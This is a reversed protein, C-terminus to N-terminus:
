ILSYLAFLHFDLFITKFGHELNSQFITSVNKPHSYVLSNDVPLYGDCESNVLCFGLSLIEM